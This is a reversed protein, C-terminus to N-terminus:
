RYERYRYGVQIRQIQIRGISGTDTDKRYERYRYGVLIGQM